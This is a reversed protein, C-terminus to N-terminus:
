EHLNTCTSAKQLTPGLIGSCTDFVDTTGIAQTVKPIKEAHDLHNGTAITSWPYFRIIDSHGASLAVILPTAAYRSVRGWFIALAFIHQFLAQRLKKPFLIADEENIIKWFVL